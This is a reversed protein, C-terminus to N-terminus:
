EAPRVETLIWPGGRRRLFTWLETAEPPNRDIEAGTRADFLADDLSYRMAVTAYDTDGERWSESLDGQLLKVNSIRNVTGRSADAEIDEAMYDALEPTVNRRLADLDQRGYATQVEGLLREFTDFDAQELRVQPSGGAAAYGGSAPVSAARDNAPSPPVRAASPPPAGAGAPAGAYAPASRRQFMRIVWRAVFFIIAVQLLLGLVSAFSGLGSFLGGGLLLGFLGAGLLGMMLGGGFGGGFMGPRSASPATTRAAQGPVGPQQVTRDISAPPRPATQTPAPTSFTRSGRSGFGSGRGIRADADVAIMAMPAALALAALIPRFRFLHRM